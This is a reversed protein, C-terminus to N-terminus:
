VQGSHEQALANPMFSRTYHRLTCKQRFIVHGGPGRNRVLVAPWQGRAGLGIPKRGDAQGEEMLADWVQAAHANDFFLEFGGEGTYDTRAIITPVDQLLTAATVGHFPLAAGAGAARRDLIAAARPGPLARMTTAPSIDAVEVEFGALHARLWAVDKATNAANVVVLYYSGLHYIFIDDM